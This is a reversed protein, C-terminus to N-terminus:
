PNYTINLYKLGIEYYKECADNENRLDMTNKCFKICCLSHCQDVAKYLCVRFMHLGREFEWDITEENLCVRFM